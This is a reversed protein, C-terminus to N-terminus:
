AIPGGTTGGSDGPHRHTNMNLGAGTIQGTSNITGNVVVDANITFVGDSSLVTSGGGNMQTISGDDGIRVYNSGARNRLETGETYFSNIKNPQSNLGVQAIADSLDHLRYEAPLQVGGNFHWFDIARESFQLVCEDGPKVPFTLFYGGGGPFAVPVDVCLPLNVAGKETFIRKLAPQVSATQTNADYSAIIGPMMTHLNVLLSKLQADFVQGLEGSIQQDSKLDKDM